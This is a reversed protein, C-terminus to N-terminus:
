IYSLDNINFLNGIYRKVTKSRKIFYPYIFFFTKIQILLKFSNLQKDATKIINFLKNTTNIRTHTINIFFTYGSILFLIDRTKNKKRDEQKDKSAFSKKKFESLKVLTLTLHFPVLMLETLTESEWIGPDRSREPLATTTCVAVPFSSNQKAKTM